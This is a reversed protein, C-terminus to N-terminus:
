VHARGIKFYPGFDNLYNGEPGLHNYVVDLIVALGSRHAADVLRQLGAPGGYSNQVAFPLVGDYGWNRAGPFQAVPMIEIATVGLDVLTPLRAIASDFTGGATFTGVHLEYIIYKQLPIGRWAEDTWPFAPDVVESPGHVGDPQSRSAPDPRDIEGNLRYWYRAGTTVGAAEGRWYGLGDRTLPVVQDQPAALHVEVTRAAPAWVNFRCGARTLTAGPPRGIDSTVQM